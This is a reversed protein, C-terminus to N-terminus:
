LDGSLISRKQFFSGKEDFDDELDRWINLQM